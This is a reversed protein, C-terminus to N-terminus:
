ISNPRAVFLGVLCNNDDYAYRIRYQKDNLLEAHADLDALGETNYIKSRFTYIDRVICIERYKYALCDLIQGPRSSAKTMAVVLEKQENSLTRHQRYVTFANLEVPHTHPVNSISSVQWAGANKIQKLYIVWLCNCKISSTKRQRKGDDLKWSNRKNGEHVCKLRLLGKKSDMSKNVAFGHLGSNFQIASIAQHTTAYTRGIFENWEVAKRKQQATSQM